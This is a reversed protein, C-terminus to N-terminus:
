ASTDARMGQEDLKRSAWVMFAVDYADTSAQEPEYGTYLEFDRRVEPNRWMRDIQIRREGQVGDM